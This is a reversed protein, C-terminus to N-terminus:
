PALVRQIAQQICLAQEEIDAWHLERLCISSVNDGPQLGFADRYHSECCSIGIKAVGRLPFKCALSDVETFSSGYYILRSSLAYKSAVTAAVDTTPTNTM